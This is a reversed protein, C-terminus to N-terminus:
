HQRHPGGDHQHHGSGPSRQASSETYGRARDYASLQAPTLLRKTQVHASLHAARLQGNLLGIRETLARITAEDPASNKFAQELMAEARIIEEGLSKARTQMAAMVRELEAAQGDTIDLTRRLELVHLPGPAGNLEAPLSLGMGRAERLDRIQEPSLAKIPRTRLESYPSTSQALAPLAAAALVAALLLPRTIM